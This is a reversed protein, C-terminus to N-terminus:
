LHTNTHSRHTFAKEGEKQQACVNQIRDCNNPSITISHGLTKM